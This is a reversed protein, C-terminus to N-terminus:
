LNEDLADTYVDIPQVGVFRQVEKGEKFLLVTPVGMVGYQQALTVNEDVDVKGIVVNKGEYDEALQEIVPGLMRCPGCWTAWFDTLILTGSELVKQFLEENFHVLAM